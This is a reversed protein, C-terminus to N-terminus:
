RQWAQWIKSEAPAFEWDAYVAVGQVAKTEISGACLGALGNGLSEVSPRHSLTKEQSVSIGILLEVDHDELSGSIGKVQERMWLRYLAPHFTYSDYTMTAIQDVRKGVNQYYSSTWRLEHIIPLINIYDPYWHSGAISIIKDKGINNRVDDLLNLFYPDDNQVTEANIHVGDFGSQEVRDAIFQVIQERTEQNSLDVWGQVGIPRNNALPLGIWALIRVDKNLRRFTSVFKNTYQYSLSFSGDSRLYSVYPFLYKLNRSKASEALQKVAMEDVPQSTWDVSVWAANQTFKCDPNSFNAPTWGWVAMIAFIAILIGIYVSRQHLKQMHKIKAYTHFVLSKNQIAFVSHM